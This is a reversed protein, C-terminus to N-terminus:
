GGGLERGLIENFRYKIVEPHREWDEKTYCRGNIYYQTYGISWVRAPGDLRHRKGNIHWHKTGSTFEIAPGDERHLIKNNDRYDLVAGCKYHYKDGM